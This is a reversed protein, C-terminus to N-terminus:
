KPVSLTKQKRNNNHQGRVLVLDDFSVYFEQSRKQLCNGLMITNASQKLSFSCSYSYWIKGGVLKTKIKKDRKFFVLNGPHHSVLEKLAFEDIALSDETYLFFLCMNSLIKKNDIWIQFFCSDGSSIVETLTTHIYEFPPALTLGLYNSSNSQNRYFDVTNIASWSSINKISTSTTTEFLPTTNEFDGNPLLQQGFAVSFPLVIGFLFLITRGKIM